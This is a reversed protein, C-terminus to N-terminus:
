AFGPFRELSFPQLPEPVLGDVITETMLRGLAPALTVGSHTAILYLGEAGPLPGALTKGDQPYARLGLALECDDLCAEGVFGPILAKARRLLKGAAEKMRETSADEGVMGDDGIADKLYDVFAEDLTQANRDRTIETPAGVALVRGAHMLSIRDCREAENMFHTSLFITKGEAASARLRQQVMRSARPDLGNTPEDLILLDPRHVQAQGIGLRQLEGGSFGKVRRDAKDALGVLELTEEVRRDIEDDGVPDHGTHAAKLQRM